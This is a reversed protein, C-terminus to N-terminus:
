WFSVRPSGAAASFPRPKTARVVCVQVGAATLREYFERSGGEPDSGQRDVVLRVPVGSGAKAILAQAFVDGIKGPRFGFQNIHVSSRAAEIDALMAPYFNRGEVLVEATTARSEEFELALDHRDVRPANLLGRAHERLRDNPAYVSHTRM